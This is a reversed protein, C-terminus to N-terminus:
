QEVIRHAGEIVEREIDFEAVAPHGFAAILDAGTRHARERDYTTANMVVVSDVGDVTVRQPREQAINVQERFRARADTLRRRRQSSRPHELKSNTM